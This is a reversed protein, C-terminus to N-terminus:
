SVRDLSVVKMITTGDDKIGRINIDAYNYTGLSLPDGSKSLMGYPKAITLTSSSDNYVLVNYNYPSSSENELVINSISLVGSESYRQLYRFYYNQFPSSNTPTPLTM